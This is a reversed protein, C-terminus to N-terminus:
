ESMWSKLYTVMDRVQEAALIDVQNDRARGRLEDSVPRASLLLGKGMIGGTQRALQALKYIHDSDKAQDRGFRKAKCEVVLLRNRHVIAADFENDTKEGATEIHLNIAFDSPRLSRLKLWVYEELWGGRFFRAAEPHAFVIESDGDWHLLGNKEADRLLDANRGGPAFDFEQRPRFPGDPENLAKDALWNLTGFFRALKDAGDGLTRTLSGRQDADAMWQVDRDGRTQIRYGQAMLMDELKLVNAMPETEATPRLWDIRDYRTECYLLHLNPGALDRLEGTLALTMLKHGGTANFVLPNVGLELAAAQASTVIAEPSTDDFPLRKVAIGRAKLAAKLNEASARMASTELIVVERAGLQVAPILNALNQGTAICLHLDPREV